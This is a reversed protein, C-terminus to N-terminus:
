VVRLGSRLGEIAYIKDPQWFRHVLLRFVPIEIHM